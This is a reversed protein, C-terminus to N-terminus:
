VKKSPHEPTSGTVAAGRMMLLLTHELVAEFAPAKSLKGAMHLSVAGHIASWLARGLLRPDGTVRGEQALLALPAEMIQDARQAASQLVAYDSIEPHPVDFMLRYAQPNKFAFSLYAKRVAVSKQASTGKRAFAKELRESFRNLAAATIAALIEDKNRFYRYPTTASCGLALALLRMTVGNVGHAAFAAEAADLLRQRFAEVDDDSLVKPM